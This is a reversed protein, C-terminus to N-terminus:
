FLRSSSPDEKQQSPAKSGTTTTATPAALYKEAAQRWEVNELVGLRINCAACLLGRINGTQHCHDTHWGHRGGPESTSCIACVHGQAELMSDWEKLSIGYTTKLSWGKRRRPNAEHARQMHAKTCVKCYSTLGDHHSRNKYFDSYPKTTECTPCYKTAEQM